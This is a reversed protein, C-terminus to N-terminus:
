DELGALGHVDGEREVLQLWRELDRASGELLRDTLSLDNAKGLMNNLGLYAVLLYYMARLLAVREHQCGQAHRYLDEIAFRLKEGVYSLPVGARDQRTTYAPGNANLPLDEPEQSM